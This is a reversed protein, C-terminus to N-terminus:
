ADNRVILQIPKGARFELRDPVIEFNRLVVETAGERDEASVSTRGTVALTGSLIALAATVGVVARLVVRQAATAAMGGDGRRYRAYAFAGGIIAMLGGVGLVLLLPVFELFSGPYVFSITTLVVAIVLPPLGYVAGLLLAWRGIRWVIGAVVLSLVTVIIGVPPEPVISLLSGVAVLLLGTIEVQIYFSSPKSATVPRAETM